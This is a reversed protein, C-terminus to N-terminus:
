TLALQSQYAQAILPIAKEIEELSNMRSFSFRLSSKVRNSDYGMSSLVHSPKRAGASCASGLSAAIGLMDLQILLTEGDIEPFWLNSTNCVRRGSGNVEVGPIQSLFQHEFSDRILGIKSLDSEEILTLAKTLGLIGLINESGPRVKKEQAGGYLLPKLLNPSNLYFFASGTPGHIKHGSFTMATVGTPISFRERGLIGVGDVILPIGEHQALNALSELELMVGTESNAASFVLLDTNSIRKQIEAIEPAGSESIPVFEIQADTAQCAGIVAPHEIATTLIKKAQFGRILTNLGETAGSCFYITHPSVHMISAIQNRCEALLSKAKQGFQHLSSPNLPHLAFESMCQFVEQDMPTTANNDFYYLSHNEFM